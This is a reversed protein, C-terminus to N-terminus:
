LDVACASIDSFFIRVVGGTRPISGRVQDRISTQILQILTEHELTRHTYGRETTGTSSLNKKSAILKSSFQRSPIGTSYNRNQTKNDHHHNVVIIDGRYTSRISFVLHTEVKVLRPKIKFM